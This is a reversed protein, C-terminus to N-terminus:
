SNEKLNTFFNILFFGALRINKNPSVILRVLNGDPAFIRQLFISCKRWFLKARYLLEAEKGNCLSVTM